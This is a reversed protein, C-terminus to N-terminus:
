VRWFITDKKKLRGQSRHYHEKWKDCFIYHACRLAREDKAAWFMSWYFYSFHYKVKYFTDCTNIRFCEFSNFASFFVDFWGFLMFINDTNILLKTFFIISSKFKNLENIFTKNRQKHAAFIPLAFCFGRKVQCFSIVWMQALYCICLYYSFSFLM